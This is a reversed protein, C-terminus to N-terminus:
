FDFDSPRRAPRRFREDGTERWDDLRKRADEIAKLRETFETPKPDPKLGKGQFYDIVADIADRLQDYSPM